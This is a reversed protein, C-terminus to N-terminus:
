WARGILSVELQLFFSFFFPAHSYIEGFAAYARTITNDM